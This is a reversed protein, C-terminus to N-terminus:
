GGGGVRAVNQNHEALTRAFIHSGDPRAVFYLLDTTPADIVAHIAALGPSCIPGPPLGKARYTNYPSEVALDSSTLDQKWYVGGPAAENGPRLAFQVTPDAQLMLGQKMRNLYVSAITPREAPLRAEREVISALTVMEHATLGRERARATVSATVRQGFATLMAEVLKRPPASREVQYTDPFLYGELAAAAPKDSLFPFNFEGRTAQELLEARTGPRQAEWADAIQAMRWGEPITVTIGSVRGQLLRQRIESPPMSPSLEYEGAEFRQDVGESRAALRFAVANRILGAAVLKEAIEAATDGAEVVVRRTGTDAGLPEDEGLIWERVGEISTAAGRVERVMGTVFFVTAVSLGVIVVLM